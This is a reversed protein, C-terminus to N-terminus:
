RKEVGKLNKKNVIIVSDGKIITYVVTQRQKCISLLLFDFFDKKDRSINIIFM